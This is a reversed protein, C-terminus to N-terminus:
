RRFGGGVPHINGKQIYSNMMGKMPGRHMLTNNLGIADITFGAVIVALTFFLIVVWPKLKYSFDYRRILWIGLALGVIAFVITWWPFSSLMQELRYEARWGNNTRLFFRTLGVLFVSVFITFVLGFFTLISGAIFYMKPKMKVKGAKIQTMVSETINKVEESM